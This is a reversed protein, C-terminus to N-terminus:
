VGHRKSGAIEGMCAGYGIVDTISDHHTPDSELRALKLDVMMVTVDIEDLDLEIGFRNKMHARWRLAIKAFSDEPKGYSAGRGNVAEGAEALISQRTVTPKPTSSFTREIYDQMEPSLAGEQPEVYEKVIHLKSDGYFHRDDANYRRVFDRVYTRFTDAGSSHRLCIMPSTIDGSITVYRKGAELSVPDPLNQPQAESVLDLQSDSGFHSGDLRFLRNAGDLQAQFYVGNHTVPGSAMGNRAFYRKGVEIMFTPKEVHEAILDLVSSCNEKANFQGHAGWDNDDDEFVYGLKLRIPSTVSRLPGRVNGERDVYRKGAELKM